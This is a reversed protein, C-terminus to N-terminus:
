NNNLVNIIENPKSNYNNIKAASATKENVAFISWTKVCRNDYIKKSLPKEDDFKKLIEDFLKLSEEDTRKINGNDDYTYEYDSTVTNENSYSKIATIGTDAFFSFYLMKGGSMFLDFAYKLTSFPPILYPRAPSFPTPVVIM